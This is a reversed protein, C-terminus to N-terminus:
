AKGQQKARPQQEHNHSEQVEGGVSEMVVAREVVEM